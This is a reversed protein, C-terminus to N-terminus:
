EPGERCLFFSVEGRDGGGVERALDRAQAVLAKQEALGLFNPLHVVGAAVRRPPRPLQHLPDDFLTPM